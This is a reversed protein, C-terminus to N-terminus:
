PISRPALRWRSLTVLEGRLDMVVGQLRRSVGQVGRSHYLWAVPVEQALLQQVDRWAADLAETSTASSVARFRADLQATHFGAYDLAGAAYRSDFMASLYSLSLDGPIGAILADFNKQTGRATSLFTGM